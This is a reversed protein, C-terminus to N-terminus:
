RRQRGFLMGPYSTLVKQLHPPLTELQPLRLREDDGPVAINYFHDSFAQTELARNQYHRELPIMVARKRVQPTYLHSFTAVGIFFRHPRGDISYDTYLEGKVTTNDAQEHEYYRGEIRKYTYFFGIGDRLNAPVALDFQHLLNRQRTPLNLQGLMGTSKLAAAMNNLDSDESVRVETYSVYQKKFGAILPTQSYKDLYGTLDYGNPKHFEELGTPLETKEIGTRLTEPADYSCTLPVFTPQNPRAIPLDAARSQEINGQLFTQSKPQSQNIYGQFPSSDAPSHQTERTNKIIGEWPNSM